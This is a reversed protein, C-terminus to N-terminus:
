CDQVYRFLELHCSRQSEFARREIALLLDSHRAWQKISEKQNRQEYGDRHTQGTQGDQYDREDQFMERRTVPTRMRHFRQRM